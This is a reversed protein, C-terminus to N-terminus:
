DDEDAFDGGLRLGDLWTEGDRKIVRHPPVGSLAEIADALAKSHTVLWIQARQSARAIMGALPALLDPHLSAEPENLAIFPPLRASLLAGALALYRLTGDSLENAEYVRKPNDPFVMGFSAMRDPMPVVLRAGPFAEDICEQLAAADARIHVLTAFVAALDHGDSALTPTTVAHCPQRMPSDRDTRLGHYFRWELLTRRVAAIDALRDADHLIALATESALLPVGFSRRKGDLGLITVGPGKRELVTRERGRHSFKLTEVKVQPEGLFGTGLITGGAQQVLGAEIRYRYRMSENILGVDLHIRAPENKPRMGAWLAAALGGERALEHAFSGQAAAQILQLGRYLNTKGAGNAGVFVTLDGVEFHISRLSRYGKFWIDRVSFSM